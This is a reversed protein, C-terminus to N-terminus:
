QNRRERARAIAARAGSKSLGFENATEQYSHGSEYYQYCAEDRDILAMEKTPEQEQTEPEANEEPQQKSLYANV